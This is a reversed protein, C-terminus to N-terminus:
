CDKYWDIKITRPKLYISAGNQTPNDIFEFEIGPYLKSTKTVPDIKLANYDANSLIIVDDLRPLVPRYLPTITYKNSGDYKFDFYIDPFLPTLGNANIYFKSWQESTMTVPQGFPLPAPMQPKLANIYDYIHQHLLNAVIDLDGGNTCTIGNVDFWHRIYKPDYSPLKDLLNPLVKSWEDWALKSDIIGRTGESLVYSIREHHQAIFLEVLIWGRQLINRLSQNLNDDTKSVLAVVTCTRCLYNLHQLGKQFLIEEDQTRDVKNIKDNQPLSIYDYWFCAPKKDKMMVESAFNFLSEIQWGTPDPHVQDDWRHSIFYRHPYSAPNEALLDPFEKLFDQCKALKTLHKIGKGLYHNYFKESDIFFGGDFHSAIQQLSM